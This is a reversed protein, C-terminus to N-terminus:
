SFTVQKWGGLDARYQHLIGGMSYQSEGDCVYCEQLHTATEPLHAVEKAKMPCPSHEWTNWFERSVEDLSPIGSPYDTIAEHPENYWVLWIFFRNGDKEGYIFGEDCAILHNVMDKHDGSPIEEEGDGVSTITLGAKELMFILSLAIPAFHRVPKDFM